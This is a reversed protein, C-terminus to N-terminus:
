WSNAPNEGSLRPSLREIERSRQEQKQMYEELWSDDALPEDTYALVDEDQLLEGEVAYTPERRCGDNSAMECTEDDIEYEPCGESGEDSSSLLESGPM